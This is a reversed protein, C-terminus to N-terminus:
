VNAHQEKQWARLRKKWEVTLGTYSNEPHLFGLTIAVRSSRRDIPWFSTDNGDVLASIWSNAEELLSAAYDFGNAFGTGPAGEERFVQGCICQEGSLLKLTDLDIRNQWGPFNEELWRWGNDVRQRITLSM